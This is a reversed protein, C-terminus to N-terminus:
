GGGTIALSKEFNHRLIKQIDSGRIDSEAKALDLGISRVVALVKASDIEENIPMMEQPFADYKGQKEASIKSLSQLAFCPIKRGHSNPM